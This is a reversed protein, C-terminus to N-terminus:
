RDYLKSFIESLEPPSFGKLWLKDFPSIYFLDKGRLTKSQYNLNNGEGKGEVQRGTPLYIWDYYNIPSKLQNVCSIAM